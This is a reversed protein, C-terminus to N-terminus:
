DCNETGKMSRIHVPFPHSLNYMSSIVFVFMYQVQDIVSSAQHTKKTTLEEEKEEAGEELLTTPLTFIPPPSPLRINSPQFRYGSSYFYSPSQDETMTKAKRFLNDDM